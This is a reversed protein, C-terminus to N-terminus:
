SSLPVFGTALVADGPKQPSVQECLGPKSVVMLLARSGVHVQECTVAFSVRHEHDPGICREFFHSDKTQAAQGHTLFPRHRVAMAMIFIAATHHGCAAQLINM